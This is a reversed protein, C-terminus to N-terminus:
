QQRLTPEPDYVLMLVANSLTKHKNPQPPYYLWSLFCSVNVQRQNLTPWRRCCLAFMLVTPAKLRARSDTSFVQQKRRIADTQVEESIYKYTLLEVGRRVSSRDQSVKDEDFASLEPPVLKSRLANQNNEM